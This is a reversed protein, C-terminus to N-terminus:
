ILSEILLLQCKHHGCFSSSQQHLALLPICGLSVSTHHQCCPLNGNHRQCLVALAALFPHLHTLGVGFEAASSRLQAGHSPVVVGWIGAGCGVMMRLGQSSQSFM